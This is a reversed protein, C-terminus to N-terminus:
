APPRALRKVLARLEEPRFPKVLYGKAGQRVAWNGDREKVRATVMMIPVREWGPTEKIRLILDIGTEGEGLGIDLMALAPPTGSAIYAVAEAANASRHVQYGDQELIYQMLFAIQDDDEVLLLVPRTPQSVGALKSGPVDPRARSSSRRRGSARLPGRADGTQRM